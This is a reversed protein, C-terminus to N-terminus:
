KNRVCTARCHSLSESRFDSWFGFFYGCCLCPITKCADATVHLSSSQCCLSQGVSLIGSATHPQLLVRVQHDTSQMQTHHSISHAALLTRWGASTLLYPLVVDAPPVAVTAVGAGGEAATARESAAAGTCSRAAGTLVEASDAEKPPVACCASVSM